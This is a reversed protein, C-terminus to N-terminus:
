KIFTGLYNIEYLLGDYWLENNYKIKAYVKTIYGDSDTEYTFVQEITYNLEGPNPNERKYTCSSILKDPVKGFRGANNLIWNPMHDFRGTGVTNSIIWFLDISCPKNSITGYEYTITAWGSVSKLKGNEWNYTALYEPSYSSTETKLYGNKYSYLNQWSEKVTGDDNLYIASTDNESNFIITNDDPYIHAVLDGMFDSKKIRNKNDYEYSIVETVVGHEDEWLVHTISGVLKNNFKFNTKECSSLVFALSVFCFFTTTKFTFNKM